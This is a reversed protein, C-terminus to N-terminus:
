IIDILLVKDVLSNSFIDYYSLIILPTIIVVKLKTDIINNDIVINKLM